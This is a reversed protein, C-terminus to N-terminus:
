RVVVVPTGADVRAAIWTIARVGFRICGHSAFTGLPAHMGVTGHLGVEGVGGAYGRLVNSYASIPLAWPGETVGSALHLKEVVFFTGLPTPTSRSGVVVPFVARVRGNEFVLARRAGRHVVIRWSTEGVDGAGVPIWGTAGNPRGPLRVRLWLGGESGAASAIVPLAMPSGTFRTRAAVSAVTRAAPDPAARVVVRGDLLLLRQVGGPEPAASGAVAPVFVCLSLLAISRMVRSSGSVAAFPLVAVRRGTPPRTSMVDVTTLEESLM